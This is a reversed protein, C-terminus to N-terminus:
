QVLVWGDDQVVGTLLERSDTNMMKLLDGAAAAEMARAPMSIELSGQQYRVTVLQNREIIRHRRTNEHTVPQGAYITRRAERLFLDAEESSAEGEVNEPAIRDGAPITQAAVLNALQLGIALLASASFEIM